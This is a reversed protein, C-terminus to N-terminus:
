GYGFQRLRRISHNYPAKTKTLFSVIAARQLFDVLKPNLQAVTSIISNTIKQKEFLLTIEDISIDDVAKVFILNDDSDFLAFKQLTNGIDVVFNM